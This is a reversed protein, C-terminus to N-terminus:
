ASCWNDNCRILREVTARPQCSIAIREPNYPIIFQSHMYYQYLIPLPIHQPSFAHNRLIYTHSIILRLSSTFQPIAHPIELFPTRICVTQTVRAIKPTSHKIPHQILFQMHTNNDNLLDLHQSPELKSQM